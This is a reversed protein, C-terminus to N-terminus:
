LGLVKGHPPNVDTVNTNHGAKGTWLSVRSPCCIAITCFHRRFFTGQNILHEQLFPMYSLSDIHLDQNDSLIFVVNPRANQLPLLKQSRISAIATGLTLASVLALCGMYHLMTATEARIKHLSQSIVLSGALYRLDKGVFTQHDCVLQFSLFLLSAPDDDTKQDGLKIVYAIGNRFVEYIISHRVREDEEM